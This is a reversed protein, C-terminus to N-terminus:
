YFTIKFRVKSSDSGSDFRPTPLEVALPKTAIRGAYRENLYDLVISNEKKM